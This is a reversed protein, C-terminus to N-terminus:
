APLPDLLFILGVEPHFDGGQRIMLRTQWGGAERVGDM